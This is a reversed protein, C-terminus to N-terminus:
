CIKPYKDTYETQVIHLCFLLDKLYRMNIHLPVAAGSGLAFLSSITCFFCVFFFLHSEHMKKPKLKYVGIILFSSM